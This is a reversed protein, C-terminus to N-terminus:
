ISRVISPTHPATKEFLKHVSDFTLPEEVYVGKEKLMERLIDKFGRQKKYDIVEGSDPCPTDGLCKCYLAKKQQEETLEAWPTSHGWTICKRYCRM